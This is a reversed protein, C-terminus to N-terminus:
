LALNNSLWNAEVPGYHKVTEAVFTNNRKKKSSKSKKNRSKKNQFM